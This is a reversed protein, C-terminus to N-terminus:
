ARQKVWAAVKKVYRELPLLLGQISEIALADNLDNYDHVLRNRLGDAENLAAKM